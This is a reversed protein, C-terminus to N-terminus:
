PEIRNWRLEIQPAKALPETAIRKDHLRLAPADTYVTRRGSLEATVVAYLTVQQDARAYAPQDSAAADDVAAVAQVAIVRATNTADGLKVPSAVKQVDRIAAPAHASTVPSPPTANSTSTCAALLAAVLYRM